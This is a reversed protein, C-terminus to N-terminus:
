TDKTRGSDKLDNVYILENGKGALDAVLPGIEEGRDGRHRWVKGTGREEGVHDNGAVLSWIIICECLLVAGYKFIFSYREHQTWTPLDEGIAREYDSELLVRCTIMFATKKPIKKRARLGKQGRLAERPDDDPIVFVETCERLRRNINGAEPGGPLQDLFVKKQDVTADPWSSACGKEIGNRELADAEIATKWSL